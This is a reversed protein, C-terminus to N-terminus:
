EVKSIEFRAIDIGQPRIACVYESARLNAEAYDIAQIVQQSHYAGSSLFYTIRYTM